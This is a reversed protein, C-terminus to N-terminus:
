LKSGRASHHEKSKKTTSHPKPTTKQVKKMYGDEDMPKTHKNLLDFLKTVDGYPIVALYNEPNEPNDPLTQPVTSIEPAQTIYEIQGDVIPKRTHYIIDPKETTILENSIVPYLEPPKTALKYVIQKTIGDNNEDLIHLPKKTILKYIVKKPPQPTVNGDIHTLVDQISNPYNQHGNITLQFPDDVPLPNNNTEPTFIQNTAPPLVNSSGSKRRQSALKNALQIIKKNPNTFLKTSEQSLESPIHPIPLTYYGHNTSKMGRKVIKHESREMQVGWTELTTHSFESALECLKRELHTLSLTELGLHDLNPTFIASIPSFYAMVILLDYKM